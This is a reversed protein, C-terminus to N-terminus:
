LGSSGERGNVLLYQAGEVSTSVYSGVVISSGPVNSQIYTSPVLTSLGTFTLRNVTLTQLFLFILLFTCVLDRLTPCVENQVWDRTIDQCQYFYSISISM